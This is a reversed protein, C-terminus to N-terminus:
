VKVATGSGETEKINKNDKVNRRDLLRRKHYIRRLIIPRGCLIQKTEAKRQALRRACTGMGHLLGAPLILWFLKPAGISAVNTKSSPTKVPENTGVAALVVSHCAFQFLASSDAYSGDTARNADTWLATPLVAGKVTPFGAYIQPFLPECRIRKRAGVHVHGSAENGDGASVGHDAFAGVTVIITPVMLGDPEGNRM